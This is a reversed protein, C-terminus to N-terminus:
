AAALTEIAVLPVEVERPSGGRLLSLHAVDGDFSALARLLSDPGSLLRGDLGTLLDGVLVGAQEAPGGEALGVVLATRTSALGAATAAAPTLEVERVAVGLARREGRGAVLRQVLHSPVALAMGGSVMANIGVVRGRSDILPGGSNGPGLMVDARILERRESSEGDQISLSTSVVGVTVAGKVGFPHGVAFVVEGPRLSRGDATEVAPLGQAAVKLVVLDNEADRAAISAPFTRGDALRVEARDGPVVHHNTIITGDAHWITGAGAGHQHARVEVVSNRIREAIDALEASFAPLLGTADLTGTTM